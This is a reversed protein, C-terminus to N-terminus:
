FVGRLIDEMPIDLVRPVSILLSAREVSKGGGVALLSRSLGHLKRYAADLDFVPYTRGEGFGSRGCVRVRGQVVAPIGYVRCTIPRHPYLICAHGEDLLPCRVREGALLLATDRPDGERDKWRDEMRRLERDARKGRQLASRRIKRPIEEFHRKVMAAEIPFLGFVAHCCDSCGTRCQVADPYEAQMRAFARDAAAALNEYRHLLDPPIM